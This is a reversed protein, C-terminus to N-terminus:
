RCSAGAVVCTGSAGAPPTESTCSASALKQVVSSTSRLMSTASQPVATVLANM